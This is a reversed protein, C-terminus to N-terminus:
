GCKARDPRGRRAPSCSCSGSGPFSGGAPNSRRRAARSPYRRSGACPPRRGSHFASPCGRRGRCGASRTRATQRSENVVQSRAGRIPQGHGVGVRRRPLRAAPGGPSQRIKRAPRHSGDAKRRSVPRRPHSARDKAGAHRFRVARESPRRTPKGVQDDDALMPGVFEGLAVHPPKQREIREGAEGAAVTGPALGVAAAAVDPGQRDAHRGGGRGSRM